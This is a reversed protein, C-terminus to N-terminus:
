TSCLIRLKMEGSNVSISVQGSITSNSTYALGMGYSVTLNKLIYTSDSGSSNTMEYEGDANLGFRNEYMYIDCYPNYIVDYVRIGRPVSMQYSAASTASSTDFGSPGHSDSPTYWGERYGNRGPLRPRYISLNYATTEVIVRCTRGLKIYNSIDLTKRFNNSNTLDAENYEYETIIPSFTESYVEEFSDTEKSFNTLDPEWSCQKETPHVYQTVSPIDSKLALECLSSSSNGCYFSSGNVLLRGSNM